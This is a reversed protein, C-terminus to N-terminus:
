PRFGRNLMRQKSSGPLAAFQAEPASTFTRAFDDGKIGDKVVEALLSALSAVATRFGTAAPRRAALPATYIADM